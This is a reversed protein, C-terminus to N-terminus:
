SDSFSTLLCFCLHPLSRNRLSNLDGKHQHSNFSREPFMNMLHPPTVSDGMAELAGHTSVIVRRMARRMKGIKLVLAITEGQPLDSYLGSELEPVWGGASVCRIRVERDTLTRTLDNRHDKTIFTRVLKPKTVYNYSVKQAQKIYEGTSGDGLQGYEPHGFAYLQGDRTCALSHDHGCAIDRINEISILHPLLQQDLTGMGLQGCSNSGCGYLDGNELLFLSHSRGTSIKQLPSSWPLHILVPSNYTLINGTGLQGRDNLGMGFLRGDLLLIFFHRSSSSSFTKLVPADLCVLHPTELGQCSKSTVNEWDVSGLIMLQGGEVPIPTSNLPESTEASPSNEEILKKLAEM